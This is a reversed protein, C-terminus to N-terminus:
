SVSLVVKYEPIVVVEDQIPCCLGLWGEHTVIFRNLDMSSFQPVVMCERVLLQGMSCITGHGERDVFLGCSFVVGDMLVMCAFLVIGVVM